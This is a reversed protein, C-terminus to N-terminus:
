GKQKPKLLQAWKDFKGLVGWASLASFVPFWLNTKAPAPTPAPTPVPTPIPTPATDAVPIPTSGADAPTPLTEVGPVGMGILEALEGNFEPVLTALLLGAIGLGTKKGDLMGGIGTGLAANVPTLKSVGADTKAKTVVRGQVGNLIEDLAVNGTGGRRKLLRSLILLIIQRLQRSNGREEPATIPGPRPYPQPSPHPRPVPVPISPGESDMAMSFQRLNQVRNTWGNGYKWWNSLTRLYKLYEDCVNGAVDGDDLQAAAALTQPGIVGDIGIPEGMRVIAQQLLIAARKPGSLVANNFTVCATAAPLQDGSIKDFYRSKYIERAEIKKLNKVDRASVKRGRWSQLTRLTIGMNTPGGKDDPDNVYGGEFDFILEVIENFRDAGTTTPTQFGGSGGSPGLLPPRMSVFDPLPPTKGKGSWSTIEEALKEAWTEDGEPPYNGAFLQKSGSIGAIQIHPKEFNLPTMGFERAIEHM